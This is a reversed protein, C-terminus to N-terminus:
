VQREAEAAGPQAAKELARRTFVRALHARYESSAHLDGM